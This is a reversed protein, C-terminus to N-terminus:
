ALKKYLIYYQGVLDTSAASDDEYGTVWENSGVRVSGLGNTGADHIHNRVGLSDLAAGDIINDSEVENVASGVNIKAAATSVVDIKVIASLVLVPYGTTNQWSFIRAHQIGATLDGEVWKLITDDLEDPTILQPSRFQQWKSNRYMLPLILDLSDLILDRALVINGTGNKVTVVRAADYVCIYTIDGESGGNITDLDDSSAGDQTDVVLFSQTKTIAGDVIMLEEPTELAQNLKLFLLNDSVNTNLDSSLLLEHGWTKPTTWSM